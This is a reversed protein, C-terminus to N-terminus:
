ATVKLWLTLVCIQLNPINGRGLRQGTPASHSRVESILLCPPSYRSVPGFNIRVNYECGCLLLLEM